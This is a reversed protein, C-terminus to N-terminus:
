AEPLFRWFYRITFDNLDSSTPPEFFRFPTHDSLPGNMQFFVTWHSILMENLSNNNTESSACLIEIMIHCLDHLVHKAIKKVFSKERLQHM